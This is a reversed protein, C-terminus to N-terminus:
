RASFRLEWCKCYLVNGSATQKVCPLAYTETVSEGNMGGEGEGARDVLRNEAGTDGSNGPM